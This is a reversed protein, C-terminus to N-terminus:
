SQATCIMRLNKYKNQRVASYMVTDQVAIDDKMDLSSNWEM